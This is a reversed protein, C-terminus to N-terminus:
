HAELAFSRPVTIELDAAVRHDSSVRDANGRVVIHDGETAIEIPTNRDDRDADEKRYARITKRGSIRIEQVDGGTIRLNGRLNQFVIRRAAGAPAQQTVPYDYQEGFMELRGPTIHWGHRHVMFLGSGILCIFVVLVISGGGMGKPVPRNTAAAAAIEALQLVGWAILFFPWYQSL